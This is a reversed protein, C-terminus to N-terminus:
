QYITAEEHLDYESPSSIGTTLRGGSDLIEKAEVASLKSILKFVIHQVAIMKQDYTVAQKDM